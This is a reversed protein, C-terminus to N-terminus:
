QRGSGDGRDTHARGAAVRAQHAKVGRHFEAAAEAQDRRLQPDPEDGPDRDGELRSKLERLAARVSGRYVAIMREGGRDPAHVRLLHNVIVGTPEDLYYWEADGVLDGTVAFDVGLDPRVKTVSLWVRVRRWGGAVRHTLLWAETSRDVGLRPWWQAYRDVDAM